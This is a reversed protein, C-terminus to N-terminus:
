RRAPSSGSGVSAAMTLVVMFPIRRESPAACALFAGIDFTTAFRRTSAAGSTDNFPRRSRASSMSPKAPANRFDSTTASFTSSRSNQSSPTRAVMRRLLVSWSALPWVM